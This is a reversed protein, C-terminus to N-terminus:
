STGGNCRRKSDCKGFDADPPLLIIRQRTPGILPGPLNWAKERPGGAFFLHIAQTKRYQVTHRRLTRHQRYVRFNHNVVRYKHNGLPGLTIGRSTM